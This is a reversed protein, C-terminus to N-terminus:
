EERDLKRALSLANRIHKYHGRTENKDDTIYYRDDDPNFSVNYKGIQAQDVAILGSPTRRLRHRITPTNPM